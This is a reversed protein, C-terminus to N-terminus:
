FLSKGERSLSWSSWVNNLLKLQVIQLTTGSTEMAITGSMKVEVDWINLSHGHLNKKKLDSVFLEM